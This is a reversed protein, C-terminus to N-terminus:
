LLRTQYMNSFPEPNYCGIVTPQLFYVYKSLALYSIHKSLRGFLTNLGYDETNGKHFANQLQLCLIIMRFVKLQSFAHIICPYCIVPGSIQHSNFHFSAMNQTATSRYVSRWLMTRLIFAPHFLECVGTSINVAHAVNQTFVIVQRLKIM